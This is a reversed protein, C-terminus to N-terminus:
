GKGQEVGYNWVLTPLNSAWEYATQQCGAPLVRFGEAHHTSGELGIQWDPQGFHAVGQLSLICWPESLGSVLQRRQQEREGRRGAFAAESM